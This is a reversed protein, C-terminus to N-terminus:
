VRLAQQYLESVMEALVECITIGAPGRRGGSTQSHMTTAAWENSFPRKVSDLLEVILFRAWVDWISYVKALGNMYSRTTM